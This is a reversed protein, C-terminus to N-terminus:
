QKHLKKKQKSKIDSYIQAGISSGGVGLAAGGLTTKKRASESAQSAHHQASREHSAAQKHLGEDHLKEAEKAHFHQEHTHFDEQHAHAISRLLLAGGGLGLATGVGRIYAHKHKKLHDKQEVISIM